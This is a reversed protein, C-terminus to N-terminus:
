WTAFTQGWLPNFVAGKLSCQCWTYAGSPSCAKAPAGGGADYAHHIASAIRAGLTMLDGDVVNTGRIWSFGVRGDPYGHSDAWLRASYIQGSVFHMMQDLSIADTQYNASRWAAGLLPTYHRELYSRATNVGAPAGNAYALIGVHQIFDNIRIARAGVTTNPVCSFAPDPYVEQAWWRVYSNMDVWFPADLLWDKLLPKYVNFNMTGQGMGVTFVAGRSVPAGMPGTALGRVLDRVNKRVADDSRVTSPLENIAWGEGESVDYGAAQMRRRFEVGKETWTMNQVKSWTGWHFEALAHLRPGRAHMTAVVGPRPMTKDGNGDLTAPISIYYHGCPSPDAALRDSLVNWAEQTYVVV